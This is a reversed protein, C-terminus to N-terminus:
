LDRWETAEAKGSFYDRPNHGSFEKFDQIFHSQDYYGCEYAIETLSKGKNSYQSLATQFRSIRSFLKPSFGTFQKFNREFQRTSYFSQKALDEVSTTGNTQIIHRITEFVGPPQKKVKLLKRELFEVVIKLRATNDIALMVKEELEIADVGIFSKLDIMQNSTDTGQISFLQSVAFPYLYAGFIGFNQNILFRRFRQSPGALGSSFSKETATDNILEDFIGNYHFILEACGDAMSRHIYHNDISAEGELVWFYRVYEALKKPPQITFYKMPVGKYSRIHLYKMQRFKAAHYIEVAGAKDM